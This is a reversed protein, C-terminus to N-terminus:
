QHDVQPGPDYLLQTGAASSNRFGGGVPNSSWMRLVHREIEYNYQM